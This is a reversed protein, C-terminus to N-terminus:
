AWEGWATDLDLRGDCHIAFDVRQANNDVGRSRAYELAAVWAQREARPMTDGEAQQFEAAYRLAAAEYAAKM